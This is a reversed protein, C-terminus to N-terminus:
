KTAEQCLYSTISSRKQKSIQIIHDNELYLDVGVLKVVKKLNVYYSRSVRLFYDSNIKDITTNLQSYLNLANNNYHVVTNHNFSECFIIDAKNIRYTNGNSQFCVTPNTKNLRYIAEDLVYCLEDKIKEKRIFDFPHINCATFVLESHDTIFVILAHPNKEMYLKALEFGSLVPMEIDLFLLDYKDDQNFSRSDLFTHVTVDIKALSFFVDIIENIQNLDDLNDDIVAIKYNM